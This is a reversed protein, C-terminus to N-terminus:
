SRSRLQAVMTEFTVLFMGASQRSTDPTPLQGDELKGIHPANNALHYSNFPRKFQIADLTLQSARTNIGRYMEPGLPMRNTGRQGRSDPLASFAKTNPSGTTWVMNAIAEGSWVPTRKVITDEVLTTAFKLTAELKREVKRDARRLGEFFRTSNTRFRVGM